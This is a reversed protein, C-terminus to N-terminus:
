QPEDSSDAERDPWTGRSIDPATEPPTTIPRIDAARIDTPEANVNGTLVAAVIPDGAKGEDATVADDMEDPRRRGRGRGGRRRRRRGATLLEADPLLAALRAEAEAPDGLTTVVDGSDDEEEFEDLSLGEIQSLDLSLVAQLTEMDSSMAAIPEPRAPPPAVQPQPQSEPPKAPSQKQIPPPAVNLNPLGLDMFMRVSGICLTRTAGAKLFFRHERLDEAVLRGETLDYIASSEPVRVARHGDRNAHVTIWNNGIYAVDEGGTWLHVGAFKCIGRFLEWTLAPEGVFVTQWNGCKKVAISPLGSGLYEAIVTATPDEVYFSPNLRERVGIERATLGETVPHRQEIVRSGIESNWEQQRLTLGLAGSASEEMAGGIQPRAECSGPAYMWALTRGGSQLKEAIASRQDVSLRFPNVFLYLKADVPFDPNVVDDQLYVKYDVGSRQLLERVGGTIKRFFAEGRQVHLLSQEDVLVIVDAPRRQSGAGMVSRYQETFSAIRDWLGDDDLWGEGWLDMFGIGTDTSFARGMSRAYAQETQLRDTLRPNFDEPDQQVPALFTKTDDESLWMKGHLHISGVPAPLSAAGGPKRDRYSPPGCILDVDPSDLLRSLALHGSYGHGFEFTYGYCVSVLARDDAARKVAGALAVLRDATSESTFENFDISSRERRTEFFARQPNPKAVVPPIEATHFQVNGDYWAARLAVLSGKYKEKLWDRFAERNAMSRDYGQDAPQFWEGRELHYGFIRNSWEYEQLHAVLIAIAHEAERWFRESTLSPDSSPGDVYTAMDTPYERKWGRAPVFVIRPMVYGLPDAEMIARMARDIEDLAHTAESLPCPLEVLTSHLHVGARAARRVESLVRQKDGSEQVNGFFLVPPFAVNDITLQPVGGRVVLHSGVTRDIVRPQPILPATPLAIEPETVVDTEPKDARTGERKGRGRGRRSRSARSVPSDTPAIADAQPETSVELAASDPAAVEEAPASSRKARSRSRPKSSIVPNSEAEGGPLDLVAPSATSSGAKSTPIPNEPTTVQQSDPTTEVGTTATRISTRTRQARKRPAAPEPQPAISEAATPEADPVPKTDPSKARRSRRAPPIPEPQAEAEQSVPPPPAAESPMSKSGRRKKPPTASPEPEAAPPAPKVDDSKISKFRTRPLKPEAPRDSAAASGTKTARRRRTPGAPPADQASAEQESKSPREARSPSESDPPLEDFSM